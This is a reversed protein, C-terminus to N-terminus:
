HVPIQKPVPLVPPLVRPARRRPERPAAAFLLLGVGCYARHQSVPLSPPLPFPTHPTFMLALFLHPADLLPRAQSFVGGGVCWWMWVTVWHPPLYPRRTEEGRKGALYHDSPSYAPKASVPSGRITSPTGSKNPLEVTPKKSSPPAPKAPSPSRKAAPAPKAPSPARRAPAPSSAKRSASGARKTPAKKVM